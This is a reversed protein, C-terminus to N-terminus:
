NLPQIDGPKEMGRPIPNCESAQKSKRKGFGRLYGHGILHQRTFPPRTTEGLHDAL